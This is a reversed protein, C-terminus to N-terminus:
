LCKGSKSFKLIDTNLVHRWKASLKSVESVYIDRSHFQCVLFMLKQLYLIQLYSSSRFFLKETLSPDFIDYEKYIIGTKASHFFVISTVQSMWINKSPQFLMDYWWNHRWYSRVHTYPDYNNWPLEDIHGMWYSVLGVGFISAKSWKLLENRTNVSCTKPSGTFIHRPKHKSDAVDRTSVLRILIKVMVQVSLSQM